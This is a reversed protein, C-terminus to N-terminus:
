NALPQNNGHHHAHGMSDAGKMRIPLSIVLREPRIVDSLASDTRIQCKGKSQAPLRADSSM